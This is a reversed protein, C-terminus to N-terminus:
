GVARKRRFHFYAAIAMIVVLTLVVYNTESFVELVREFQSGFVFGVTAVASVWVVAGLFNFLLFRRWPMELVGALPGAIIRMGFIFRAWFIAAAGHREFLREGRRLTEESVHFWRQHRKLLPRGGRHGIWYGVNDGLTCACVGFVIIWAIHLRHESYALFSAYLLVTEGPLPLGANEGLLTLVVAWYGFAAFFAHLHQFFWSSM